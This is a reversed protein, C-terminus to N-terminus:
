TIDISHHDDFLTVTRRTVPRPADAADGLGSRRQNEAQQLLQLRQAEVQRGYERLQADGMLRGVFERRALFRLGGFGLGGRM